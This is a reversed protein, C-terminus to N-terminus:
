RREFAALLEAVAHGPKAASMVAQIVACGAAGTAAVLQVNDPSIGGIGIVPLTVAEVVRRLGDPGIQEGAAEKKSKTSFVAGCGIYAAGAREARTAIEPSDTSFGLLLSDNVARAAAVPIDDPGLHVGDAQAALAVDLRDNIFLRAGHHRTLDRLRLAQELLEAASADKDRLQVAPAGASLAEAIVWEVTRPAALRRDTIVVLRLDLLEDNRKIVSQKPLM